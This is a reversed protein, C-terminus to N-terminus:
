CTSASPEGAFRARALSGPGAVTLSVAAGLIVITRFTLELIRHRSIRKM